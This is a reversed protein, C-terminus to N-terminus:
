CILRAVRGYAAVMESGLGTAPMLMLTLAESRTSLQLGAPLGLESLRRTWKFDFQM